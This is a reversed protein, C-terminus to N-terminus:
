EIVELYHTYAGKGSPRERGKKVAYGAKIMLRALDLWDQENLKTGHLEYIKM